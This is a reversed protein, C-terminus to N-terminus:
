VQRERSDALSFGPYWELDAGAGSSEILADILYPRGERTARIAREMAPRIQDPTSLQEGKIGFANAVQTYDVNPDGLYSLMDKQEQAQRGDRAFM